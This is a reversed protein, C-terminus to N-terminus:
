DTTRQQDYTENYIEEPLALIIAEPINDIKTYFNYALDIMQNKEMEKAQKIISEQWMIDISPFIVDIQEVLWDVATQKM